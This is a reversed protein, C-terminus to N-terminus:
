AAPSCPFALARRLQPHQLARGQQGGGVLCTPGSRGPEGGQTEWVESSNEGLEGRVPSAFWIGGPESGAECGSMFLVRTEGLAARTFGALMLPLM